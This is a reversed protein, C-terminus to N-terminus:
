SILQTSLALAPPHPLNTLLKFEPHQTSPGRHQYISKLNVILSSLAVIEHSMSFAHRIIGIESSRLDFITLPHEINRNVRQEIGRAM